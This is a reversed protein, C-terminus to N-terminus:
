RRINCCAIAATLFWVTSAQGDISDSLVADTARRDLGLWNGAAGCGGRARLAGASRGVGQGQADREARNLAVHEAPLHLRRSWPHGAPLRGNRHATMGRPRSLRDPSLLDFADAM